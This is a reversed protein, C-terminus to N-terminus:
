SYDDIGHHGDGSLFISASRETGTVPTATSRRLSHLRLGRRDRAITHHRDNINPTPPTLEQVIKHAAIPKRKRCHIPPLSALKQRSFINAIQNGEM